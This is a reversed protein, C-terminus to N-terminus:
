MYCLLYFSRLNRCAGYRVVHVVGSAGEAVNSFAGVDEIAPVAVSEFKGAGYKKEFYEDLWPKKDRVTGRVRYGLALLQDVVHSGIYGNAGTVLVLSGKPIAYETPAM